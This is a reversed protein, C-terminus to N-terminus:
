IGVAFNIHRKITAYTDLLFYLPARCFSSCIISIKCLFITCDAVIVPINLDVCRQRMIFSFHKVHTCIRPCLACCLLISLTYIQIM